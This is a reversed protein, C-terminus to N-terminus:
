RCLPRRAFEAEDSPRAGVRLDLDYTGDAQRVGAVTWFSVNPNLGSHSTAISSIRGSRPAGAISREIQFVRAYRGYWGEGIPHPADAKGLYTESVLRGVFAVNICDAPPPPTACGACTAAFLALLGIARM